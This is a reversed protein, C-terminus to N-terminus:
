ATVIKTLLGLPISSGEAAQRSQAKVRPLSMRVPLQFVGMVVADRMGAEAELGQAFFGAVAAGTM